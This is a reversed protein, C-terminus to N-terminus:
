LEGMERVFDPEFRLEVEYALEDKMNKFVQECKNAITIPMLMEAKVYLSM